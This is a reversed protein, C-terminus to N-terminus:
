PRNLYIGDYQPMNLVRRLKEMNLAGGYKPDQHM